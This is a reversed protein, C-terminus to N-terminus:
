CWQLQANVAEPSDIKRFIHERYFKLEDISMRIDALARHKAIEKKNPQQNYIGPYWRSCIEKVSSVDIIRYHMHQEFEPMYKMLFIRDMYVTNGGLPCKKFPTWERVFNLLKLEAERLPIGNTQCKSTLGSEGHQKTSWENMSSMVEPPHSICLDPGEALINLNGDTVLCAVELVHDKNPDLGTMEMDVWVINEAGTSPPPKPVTYSSSYQPLENNTHNTTHMNNMTGVVASIGTVTFFKIHWLRRTTKVNALAERGTKFHKLGRALFM